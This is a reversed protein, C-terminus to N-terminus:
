HLQEMCIRNHGLEKAHILGSDARSLVDIYRQDSHHFQSLGGSIFTCAQPLDMDLLRLHLTQRLRDILGWAHEADTYPMLIVFGNQQYRFARDEQRIASLSINGVLEIIRECTAADCQRKLENFYDLEFLVLSSQAHHRHYLSFYASLEKDMHRQSYLNALTDVGDIHSSKELQQQYLTVDQLQMLVLQASNIPFELPQLQANFWRKPAALLHPSLLEQQSVTFAVELPQASTLVQQLQALLWQCKEPCLLEALAMQPQILEPQATTTQAGFRQLCKGRANLLYAPIPLKDLLQSLQAKSLM